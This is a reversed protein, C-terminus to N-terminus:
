KNDDRILIDPSTEKQRGYYIEEPQIHSFNGLSIKSIAKSKKFPIHDYLSSNIM